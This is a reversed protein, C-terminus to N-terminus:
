KVILKLTNEVDLGYAETIENPLKPFEQSFPTTMFHTTELGTHYVSNAIAYLLSNRKLFRGKKDRPAIGRQITWGNFADKPPRKNKYKYSSNFVRKKKWKTGDAKAGGVGKVGKDIYEGYDEWLLAFRISNPMQKVEFGLSKSLAGSTNKDKQKLIKRAKDNVRKGFAILEKEVNTM